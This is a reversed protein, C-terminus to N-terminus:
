ANIASEVALTSARLCNMASEMAKTFRLANIASEVAFASCALASASAAAFSFARWCNM